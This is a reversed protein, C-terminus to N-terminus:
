QWKDHSADRLKFLSGAVREMAGEPRGELIEIEMEALEILLRAMDVQYAATKAARDEEPLDLITLPLADKSAISLVQMERVAGLARESGDPSSLSQALTKLNNKMGYMLDELSVGDDSPRDQAAVLVTALAAFAVILLPRRASM